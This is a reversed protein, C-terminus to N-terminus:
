PSLILDAAREGIMIAAGNTNGSILTPMVSADAVRLREVGRVKLDPALPADDGGMRCTGVTHYGLAANTRLWDLWQDDTEPLPQDQDPSVFRAFPGDDLMAKLTRLGAILVARDHADALLPMAIRPPDNARPGTAVIRGRLRPRCVNVGILVGRRRHLEPRGRSFDVCVPIFSLMFDPEPEDPRSRGYAMAQVSVSALPGRGATLWDWGAKLAKLPSRLDNFTPADVYRMLSGALHDQMHEGVGPADVLLDIGAERLTAAPGIGSRQLLLPSGFAGACVIVEARAEAFAAAGDGRTFLVGRAVGERVVVREVQAGTVIRLNARARAPDLYATRTSARRGHDITGLMPFGGDLEGACYDDRRAMGKAECADLFALTLPHPPTASVGLPGLAGLQQSPAGRYGEARRFYPLVDEFDWGSAGATVWRAYDARAGRTYVLGNIASSGGLLKGAPFQVRRGDLTPDPEGLRCWDLAPDGILRFLGAPMRVLLDNREGGAELLLVTRGPRRESLRAAIVAGASGGGVVIYDASFAQTRDEVARDM